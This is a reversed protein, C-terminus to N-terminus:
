KTKELFDRVIEVLIRVREKDRLYFNPEMECINDAIGECDIFFLELAVEDCERGMNMYKRM